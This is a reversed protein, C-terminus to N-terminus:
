QPKRLIRFRAAIQGFFNEVVNRARSLRYNFDRNQVPQSKFSFPKMIYKKLAFADDAVIVYPITRGPLSRPSPLHLTNQQLCKSLECNNYVGGDSIRGNCGVDFYIIEYNPGILALLVISHTGKYNFYVSGEKKPAQIVVHKGDMAALCNPFNWKNHFGTSYQLWDEETSPVKLYKSKLCQYLAECCELVIRAITCVPIRFLYMLSHFSDGTALFRLTVLLRDKPPIALRMKTDQKQISTQILSLIYEFDDNSMRLFNKLQMSDETRLEELLTNQFSLDVRRLVWNRVWVSRKTKKKIQKKKILYAAIAAALRIKGCSM